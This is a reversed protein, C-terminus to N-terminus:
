IENIEKLYKRGFKEDVGLREAQEERRTKRGFSQMCKEHRGNKSCAGGM